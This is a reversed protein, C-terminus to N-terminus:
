GITKPKVGILVSRSASNVTVDLTGTSGSATRLKHFAQMSPDNMAGENSQLSTYGSPDTITAGTNTSSTWLIVVSENKALTIAAAQATPTTGSGPFTGIVDYAANRYSLMYCRTTGAPVTWTATTSGSSGAEATRYAVHRGGTDLVDTWGSPPTFSNASTIGSATCMIAILLDGPVTDSPYTFIGTSNSENRSGIYEINKVSSRMRYGIM